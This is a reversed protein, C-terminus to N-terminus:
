TDLRSLWASLTGTDRFDRIYFDCPPLIADTTEVGVVRTGAARAAEIGTGSDEFVVCSAPDVGLLHAAKRYIEPHPKPNSVQHGDVAVRFYKRLGGEDLVFDVNAPEANSAVAMARGEQGHLFEEVGPVLHRKLQPRMMERYIAEKAAGHRFVEDESIGAGFIDRVIQDNRKGHMREWTNDTSIRFESLYEKWARAHLPNSDILVGDMDLIYAMKGLQRVEM